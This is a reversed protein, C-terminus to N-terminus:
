LEQSFGRFKVDLEAASFDAASNHKETAIDNGLWFYFVVQQDACLPCLGTQFKSSRAPISVVLILLKTIVIQFFNRPSNLLIKIRSFLAFM